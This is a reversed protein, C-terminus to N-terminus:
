KGKLWDTLEAEEKQLRKNWNEGLISPDNKVKELSANLDPITVGLSAISDYINILIVALQEPNVTKGNSFTKMTEAIRPFHSNFTERANNRHKIENKVEWLRNRKDQIEQMVLAHVKASEQEYARKKEELEQKLTNLDTM